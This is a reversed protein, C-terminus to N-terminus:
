DDFSRGSGQRALPTPCCTAPLLTSSDPLRWCDTIEAQLYQRLLSSETRAEEVITPRGDIVFILDELDHRALFDGRGRGRFAEMKTALFYPASVVRIELDRLLKHPIASEMAARYWRNSFGLIKQDLPMVDLIAESHFWRCM